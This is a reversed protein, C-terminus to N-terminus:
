VVRLTDYSMVQGKPCDYNISHSYALPKNGNSLADKLQPRKPVNEHPKIDSKQSYETLEVWEVKLTIDFTTDTVDPSRCFVLSKLRDNIVTKFRCKQM